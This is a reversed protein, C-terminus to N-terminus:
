EEYHGKLPLGDFHAGDDTTLRDHAVRALRMPPLNPALVYQLSSSLSLERAIADGAALDVVEKYDHDNQKGKLKRKGLEKGIMQRTEPDSCGFVQLVCASLIQQAGSETYMEVLQPYNQAHLWLKVNKDRMIALWERVKNVEKGWIGVEDAVVLIPRKPAGKRQQFVLGALEFISRLWADAAREGRPPIAFLTVPWDDVGIEDIRFDSPGSLVKEMTPDLMWIGKTQLESNLTGFAKEGLQNVSAAVIQIFGGLAPNEMMEALFAVQADTSARGTEPDIGMIRRLACPLTQEEVPYGATLLHGCAAALASRPGNTFWPDNAKPNDPFSGSAIALLRGVAGPQDCDVDSLFTYRHSPWGTQGGPDLCFSRSRPLHYRTTKAVKPNCGLSIANEPLSAGFEFLAPDAHRFAALNAHEPKPSIVIAGSYRGMLLQPWISTISKGAGTSALTLYHNGNLVVAQKGIGHEFLTTGMFQGNITHGSIKM